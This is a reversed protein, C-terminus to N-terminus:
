ICYDKFLSREATYRQMDDDFNPNDDRTKAIFSNFDKFFKRFRIGESLARKCMGELQSIYTTSM